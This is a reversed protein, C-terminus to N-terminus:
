KATFFEVVSAGLQSSNTNRTTTQVTRAFAGVSKSVFGGASPNAIFQAVGPLQSNSDAVLLFLRDRGAPAQARLEWTDGTYIQGARLRNDQSVANPFLLSVTGNCDIDYIAGFCDQNSRFRIIIEDGPGGNPGIKYTSGPGRDVSISTTITGTRQALALLTETTGPASQTLSQGVASPATSIQEVKVRVEHSIGTPPAPVVRGCLATNIDDALKEALDEFAEPDGKAILRVGGIEARLEVEDDTEAVSLTVTKSGDQNVPRVDTSRSLVLFVNTKLRKTLSSSGKTTVKLSIRNDEQERSIQRACKIPDGLDLEDILESYHKEWVDRQITGTLLVAVGLNALQQSRSLRKKFEAESLDCEAAANALTMPQLLYSRAAITIPEDQPLLKLEGSDDKISSGTKEVAAAFRRADKRMVSQFEQEEPYWRKARDLDFKPKLMLDLSKRVGNQFFQMGVSHCSMCSLGNTVRVDDFMHTLDQVIDTPATNIRKDGASIMYGQLGNPLSFIYEGGDEIFDLPNEFINKRVGGSSGFDFSKWYYGFPTSHREVARNNKSVGSPFLGARVVKDLSQNKNVDVGLRRELEKVSTPIQLVEHYIPPISANAIFWDARIYPVRALSLSKIQGARGGQNKPIYGYPYFDLITNWTAPTWDVKRIDLRFLTKNPGFAEMEAIDPNWSLSNVLKPLAQRIAPIKAATDSSRGLNAISFYRIFRRDDEPLAELDRVIATLTQEETVRENDTVAAKWDAAGSKVWETLTAGEDATLGPGTPPMYKGSGVTAEIIPSEEPKGPVIYKKTVLDVRSRADFFKSGSHCPSCKSELIKGAKVAVDNQAPIFIGARLTKGPKIPQSLGAILLFTCSVAVCIPGLGRAQLQSHVSEITSM